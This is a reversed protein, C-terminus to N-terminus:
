HDKSSVVQNRGNGKAKYLAMDARKLMTKIDKENKLRATVGISVTFQVPGSTTIVKLHQLSQRIREAVQMADEHTTHTLIAVFEEGGYRCFIDTDRLSKLCEVALAKLVEDGVDHGYRDNIPKFYDIDLIFLSLPLRYRQARHIEKESQMIFHRRNGVGTLEDTIAMRRIEEEMQKQQTIDWNVGTMRLPRNATDRTVKAFAKIHRIQGSPWIVRFETNFEKKGQIAQRVEAEARELDDPHVREQWAKYADPYQEPNAEYLTYMRSDWFLKNNIIDLDWIGLGASEVALQFRETLNRLSEEVQKQQTLDTHAGLMRLPKGGSDRIAMGRCRVWVTHGDLHRYRVVQDYPYNPDNCHHNFNNIALKLDDPHVLDQWESSLHDKDAPDYGLVEWFRPSMWENEKKELDWYWMGDLSGNQLFEFIAPEKKILSYLETELYHKEESM